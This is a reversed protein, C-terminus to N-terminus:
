GREGPGGMSSLVTVGQETFAYPLYKSHQGRGKKLTVIQSRLIASEEQNLRFAFDECIGGGELERGGPSPSYPGLRSQVVKFPRVVVTDPNLWRSQQGM